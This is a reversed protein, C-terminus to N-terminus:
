ADELTLLQVEPTGACVQFSDIKDSNGELFIRNVYLGMEM